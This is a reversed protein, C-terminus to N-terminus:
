KALILSDWLGYVKEPGYREAITVANESLAQCQGPNDLLGLVAKTLAPRDGVPFLLGDLGDRIVETNGSCNSAVVPLGTAMAECLANPFGEYRSPFVFLDADLLAAQIDKTAGPLTVKFQLAMETILKELNGREPGEGYITLTLVPYQKAWDSFAMILTKHNKEASLRGVTVINTIKDRCQNKINEPRKVMNPIINIEKGLTDTFYRAAAQTQVVVRHAMPYLKLRLWESLRKLPLQHHAPDTRESVIVPVGLGWCALLVRVNMLDIFSVVVDAKLTKVARRIGLLSSSVNCIRRLISARGKSSKNTQILNIRLDIPYFPPTDSSVLTLLSVMHGEEAYHNALDSLVREAGGSGLSSICFVIKV